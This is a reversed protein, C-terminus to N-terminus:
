RGRRPLLRKITSSLRAAVIRHGAANMHLGDFGRSNADYCASSPVLTAGRTRAIADWAQGSLGCLIVSVRKARLKALIADVNATIRDPTTGRRTDNFGGQVIAVRVGKPVAADLRALIGGTTDGSVGQNSVRVDYGESRLTAELIAPFAGARGVGFGATNSDGIAVIDLTQSHAENCAVVAMLVMSFTLGVNM